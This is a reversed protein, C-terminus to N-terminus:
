SDAKKLWNKITHETEEIVAIAQEYLRPFLSRQGTKWYRELYQCAYKMRITGIYVAGGKIKHAIREVEVFNEEAFATKMKEYDSSLENQMLNKLLDILITKDGLNKITQELELIPFQELNFLEKETDPLDFKIKDLPEDSAIKDQKLFANLINSTQSQTIPKSLVADMGAEICRQKNEEGAHATLAVIPIHESERERNRIEQTLQYGDKGEGLGIDMFILDYYYNNIKDLADKANKALDVRCNMSSLITKAVKQAIANDEVVLISNKHHSFDEKLPIDENLAQAIQNIGTEDDLLPEQLPIVCTFSTGKGVQSSVSIEAELEDIFQRVIYLGLGAGKYIGKYSPTLRKFQLYIDQQKEVPMGVGSDIVKIRVVLQRNQKKALDATLTVHGENTFNLANGVLELIIRHLRIKDGIVYRPLNEDILFNLELNKLKSKAMNLDIVNKLLARLDFKQKLMPIEGSSVRIAELVDDMLDLLAFSSAILNDAYEQTHTEKSEKKLIEAFGVIGSLPTRIDHRMNELFEIKAKNAAEAKEKAEKLSEQLQKQETIDIYLALVGEIKGKKSLLPVKSTLLIKDGNPLSQKEEINIKAIGTTIVEKDDARYIESQEKPTPLDFDTKGIIAEPTSLGMAKAMAKNCGMYVSDKNKWFIYHPLLDIISTKLKSQEEITQIFFHIPQSLSIYIESDPIAEYIVWQFSTNKHFTIPLKDKTKDEIKEIWELIPKFSTKDLLANTLNEQQYLDRFSDNELIIKRDHLLFAPWPYNTLLPLFGKKAKKIPNFLLKKM